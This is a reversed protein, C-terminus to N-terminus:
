IIHLSGGSNITITHGNTDICDIVIYQTTLVLNGSLSPCVDVDPGDFHEWIADITSEWRNADRYDPAKATPGAVYDDKIAIATGPISESEVALRLNEINELFFNFESVQTVVASNPAGLETIAVTTPMVLEVFTKVLIFNHYVREWDAVNWYAKSNKAILDAATRDTVPTIYAM